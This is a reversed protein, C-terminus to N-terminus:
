SGKVPGCLIFRIRQKDYSWDGLIISNSQLLDILASDVVLPLKVLIYCETILQNILDFATIDGLKIQRFDLSHGSRYATGWPPDFYVLDNPQVPHARLFDLCSGLVPKVHTAQYVQLNM